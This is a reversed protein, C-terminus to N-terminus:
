ALCGYTSPGSLRLCAALARCATGHLGAPRDYEPRRFKKSSARGNSRLEFL